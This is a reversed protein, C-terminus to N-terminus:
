EVEIWTNGQKEYTKGEFFKREPIQAEPEEGATGYQAKFDEIARNLETQAQPNHPFSRRLLEGRRDVAKRYTGKLDKIGAEIQKLIEPSNISEPRASLQQMVAAMNGAATRYETREQKGLAANNSNTLLNM